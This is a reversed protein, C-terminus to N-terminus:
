LLSFQSKIDAMGSVTKSGVINRAGGEKMEEDRMGM